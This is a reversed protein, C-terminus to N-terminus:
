TPQRGQGSRLVCAGAAILGAGALVLGAWSAGAITWFQEPFTRILLSDEAFTWTGAKFFLGHFSTFFQEFNVTAAIVCLLVLVTALFAGACLTDAIRATRKQAVEFALGTLLVLALIGTVIRAYALVRRVDLLHSVAAPDFGPKGDVIAPLTGAEGDVVFARVQEAVLTMRAPGLGSEAALSTRSGVIRTFGPVTLPMLALGLLFLALGFGAIWTVLRRM